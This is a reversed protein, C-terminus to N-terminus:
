CIKVFLEFKTWTCTFETRLGVVHPFFFNMSNTELVKYMHDVIEIHCLGSKKLRINLTM